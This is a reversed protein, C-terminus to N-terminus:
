AVHDTSYPLMLGAVIAAKDRELSRAFTLFERVTSAHVDLQAQAQPRLSGPRALMWGIVKGPTVDEFPSRPASELSAPLGQKRPQEWWQALRRYVSRSSGTYGKEKLEEWLVTGNREGV